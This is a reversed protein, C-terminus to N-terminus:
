RAAPAPESGEARKRGSRAWSRIGHNVPEEFLLFLAISLINLAIFQLIDNGVLAHVANAIVGLHILYFAYSAKGLLVMPASGLFRQLWTRESILGLLIGTAALPLVFFNLLLSPPTQSLAKYVAPQMTSMAAITLFAVAASGWTILGRWSPLPRGARMMIFRALMMGVFFEFIRGFFTCGLVFKWGEFFGKFSITEGILLLAIAIAYSLPLVLWPRPLRGMLVFLFPASIYFCEEVTLTWAQLVGSSFFDYSFGRMLTLNLVWIGVNEGRDILTIITVLAFLPYIRAFRNLMYGKWWQRDFRCSEKYRSYILFGSLVFFFTVGVQGEALLHALFPPVTGPALHVHCFFVMYAAIARYGTLAPFYRTNLGEKKPDQNM